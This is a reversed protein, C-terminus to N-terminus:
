KEKELNLIGKLYKYDPKETFSLQRVYQLMERIFLPLHSTEQKLQMMKDNDFDLQIDTENVSDSSNNRTHDSNIVSRLDSNIVSEHDLNIVSEHDSSFNRSSNSVIIWPLLGYLMYIIIYIVSELDDRRSPELFKHVNLSVFNVTGIIQNIKREEIHKGDHDYRKCFGYDILYIKNNSDLLFNDPKIDRHLLLKSHLTELREIMQTGFHLCLSFSVRKNTKILTHLSCKYLDIVLYNYKVDTGFWKLQPFGDLKGLYQYIRAEVKLVNYDGSRKEIKIAVKEGTRINQGKYVFGFSGESIKNLIKYKNSIM